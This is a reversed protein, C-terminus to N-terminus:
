QQRHGIVRAPNGAAVTYPEISKTVVSGAGIVAGRGLKVGPLLIVRSGIWVDDGVEVEENELYGQDHILLKADAFAHNRTLVLVDEGMMVDNGITVGPSLKANVGIGSNDGLRIGGGSGFFARREINVGRGCHDFLGRCCWRRLVGPMGGLRRSSPLWQLLCYYLALLLARKM